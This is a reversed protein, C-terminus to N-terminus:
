RQRKQLVALSETSDVWVYNCDRRLEDVLQVVGPWYAAYDHFAVFGSAAICREFHSFDTSVSEYDHLGDVFLLGIPQDWSVDTSCQRITCVADQLGAAVINACFAEYTPVGHGLGSATSVVGAHPDIAIVQGRPRLDRVASALLVTSRGLYSGIEVVACDSPLERLARSVTALLLRAEEESFWGGVPRMLSLARSTDVVSGTSVGLTPWDSPEIRDGPPLPILRWRQNLGEWYTWQGVRAGEKKSAETEGGEVDLVKLSNRNVIHYFENEEGGEEVVPRWQMHSARRGEPYARQLVAAGEELSEYGIELALGSHLNVIKYFDSGHDDRAALVLRWRQRGEGRDAAQVAAAGEGAGAAVELVRGSHVNVLALLGEPLPVAV